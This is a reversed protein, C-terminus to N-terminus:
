APTTGRIILNSGLFTISYNPSDPTRPATLRKCALEAMQSIPARVTTLNIVSQSALPIDDFGIVAIQGPIEIGQQHLYNLGGMAMEDNAYFIAGPFTVKKQEILNRTAEYGGDERFNGPHTELTYKPRGADVWAQIAGALREQSAVQEEEGKVFAVSTFGKAILYEIAQYAGGFNDQCIADVALGPEHHDILVCPSIARTIEIIEYRPFPGICMLAHIQENHLLTLIESLSKGSAPILSLSIGQQSANSRLAEMLERHFHGTDHPVMVRSLVGIRQIEKGSYSRTGGHHHIAPLSPAVFTGRAPETYVIGRQVLDKIAKFVTLKNAQFQAALDDMSPLRDHPQYVGDGIQKEIHNAIERYLFTTKKGGHRKRPTKKM